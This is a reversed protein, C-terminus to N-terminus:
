ASEPMSLPGTIHFREVGRKTLNIRLDIWGPRTTGTCDAAGAAPFHLDGVSLKAGRALVPLLIRSGATLPTISCGGIEGGRASTPLARAAVRAYDPGPPVHGLLAGDPDEALAVLSDLAPACGIIGPHAAGPFRGDGRGIALVDVVIVDGPEAGVISVPGCLLPEDTGTRGQCELRVSGGSIVEAAAPIAPLWRNHGPIAHTHPRHPPAPRQWGVPPAAPAAALAL